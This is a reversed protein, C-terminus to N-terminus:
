NDCYSEKLFNYFQKAVPSLVRKKNSVLYVNWLFSSDSLPIARINPTNIFDAIFDITISLGQKMSCLKHCFSIDGTEIIIDPCFGHSICKKRFAENIWFDNGEMIIKENRLDTFDILEKNYLPHNEYVLVMVKRSFLLFSEYNETHNLADSSLLALEYEDNVFIQQAYKDPYERWSIHYDPYQKQFHLYKEYPLANMAGYSCIFLLDKNHGGITQLNLRMQTCSQLLEKAHSYLYDGAKTPHLGQVTRDFLIVDLENELNQLSRSLGQPTIYLELAAQRLSRKEYLRIFISLLKSDM